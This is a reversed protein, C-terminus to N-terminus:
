APEAAEGLEQQSRHALLAGVVGLARHHDDPRSGVLLLWPREVRIRTHAAQPGRRSHPGSRRIQGGRTLLRLEALPRPLERRAALKAAPEAMVVHEDVEGPDDLGNHRRVPMQPKSLVQPRM